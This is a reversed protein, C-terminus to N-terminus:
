PTIKFNVTVTMHVPVPTEDFRAPSYRWRSVADIAARALGPDPASLPRLEQICGSTGISAQLVVLGHVGRGLLAPPYVPAVNKVKRPETIKRAVTGERPPLVPSADACALADKDLRLVFTVKSAAPGSLGRLPGQGSGLKGGSRLSLAMAALLARGCGTVPLHAVNVQRPRGDPGYEVESIAAEDGPRCDSVSLLDRLTGAPLDTVFRFPPKDAFGRDPEPIPIPGTSRRRPRRTEAVGLSKLETPLIPSREGLKHHLRTPHSVRFGRAAALRAGWDAAPGARKRLRALVEFAYAAELDALSGQAEPTTDLASMVEDPIEAEDALREALNWYTVARLAPVPSGLAAALLGPAPAGPEESADLLQAWAVPDQAQLLAVAAPNVMETGDRTAAALLTTAALGGPDHTRLTGLHVLGAVRRTYGLGLAATPLADTRAAAEILSTDASPSVGCAFAARLLESAAAADTERGLAGLVADLLDRRGAVNVVRAAVARVLPRGDVLARTLIDHVGEDGPDNIVLAVRGPSLPAPPAEAGLALSAGSSLVGLLLGAVRWSASWRRLVLPARREM